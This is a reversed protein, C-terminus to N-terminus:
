IKQTNINRSITSCPKEKYDEEIFLQEHKSPNKFVLIQFMEHYTKM